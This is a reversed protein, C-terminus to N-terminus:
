AVHVQWIGGSQQQGDACDAGTWCEWMAGGIWMADARQGLMFQGLTWEIYEMDAFIRSVLYAPQLTYRFAAVLSLCHCPCPGPLGGLQPLEAQTSM